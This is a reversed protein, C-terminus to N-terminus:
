EVVFDVAKIGGADIRLPVPEASDGLAYDAGDEPELNEGVTGYRWWGIGGGEESVGLSYEGKGLGRVGHVRGAHEVAELM